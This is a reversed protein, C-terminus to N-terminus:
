EEEAEEESLIAEACSELDEFVKIWYSRLAEADSLIVPYSLPRSGFFRTSGIVRKLKTTETLVDSM